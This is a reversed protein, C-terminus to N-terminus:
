ASAPEEIVMSDDNNTLLEALEIPPAIWESALVVDNNLLSNRSLEASVPPLAYKSFPM